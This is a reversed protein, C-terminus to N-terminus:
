DHMGGARVLQTTNYGPTSGGQKSVAVPICDRLTKGCVLSLDVYLM